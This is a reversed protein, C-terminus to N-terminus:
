RFWAPEVGTVVAPRSSSQDVAQKDAHFVSSTWRATGPRDAPQQQWQLASRSPLGAKWFPTLHSRTRASRLKATRRLGKLCWDDDLTRRNKPAQRNCRRRIKREVEPSPATIAGAGGQFRIVRFPAPEIGVREATGPNWGALACAKGPERSPVRTLSTPGDSRCQLRVETSLQGDLRRAQKSLLALGNRAQPELGGSEATQFISHSPGM